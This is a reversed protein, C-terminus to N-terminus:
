DHGAWAQARVVGQRTAGPAPLESLAFCLEPITKGEIQHITVTKRIASPSELCRPSHLNNNDQLPSWTSGDCEAALDHRPFSRASTKPSESPIMIPGYNSNNKDGGSMPTANLRRRNWFPKFLVRLSPLCACIVGLNMEAGSWVALPVADITPNSRPAFSFDIIATLRGISAVIVAIGVSFMILISAKKKRSLELRRIFPVPLIIIWLDFVIHLVSSTWIVKSSDICSGPHEGDWQLWFHDVPTCMFALAGNIAIVLAVGAVLTATIIPRARPLTFIRLYFMTISLRIFFRAFGYIIFAAYYGKFLPTINDIPIAWVDTGFGLGQQYLGLVAFAVCCLLAVFSFLDDWWLKFRILFRAFFRLCVMIASIIAFVIFIAQYSHDVHPVIGCSTSALKQTELAERITCNQIMCDRSEEALTQDTCICTQNGIACASRSVAIALCSVACLPLQGVDFSM